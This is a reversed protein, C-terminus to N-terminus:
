IFPKFPDGEGVHCGGGNSVQGFDSWFSTSFDSTKQQNKKVWWRSRPVEPTLLVTTLGMSPTLLLNQPFKCSENKNRIGLAFARFQFDLCKTAVMCDSAIPIGREPLERNPNFWIGLGSRLPHTVKLSIKYFLSVIFILFIPM